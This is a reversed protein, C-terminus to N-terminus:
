QVHAARAAEGRLLLRERTRGRRTQELQQLLVDHQARQQALQEAGTEGHADAGLVLEGVQAFARENQRWVDDFALRDTRDAHQSRRAHVIPRRLCYSMNPGSPAAAPALGNPCPPKPRLSKNSANKLPSTNAPRVDAPPGNRPGSASVTICSVSWSTTLPARRVTSIRMGTSHSVHPPEPPM